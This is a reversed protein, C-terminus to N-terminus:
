DTMDWLVESLFSGMSHVPLTDRVDNELYRAPPDLYCIAALSALHQQFLKITGPVCIEKVGKKGDLQMESVCFLVSRYTGWGFVADLIRQHAYPQVIRERTTIKVPCVLDPGRHPNGFVIDTSVREASDPIGIHKSRRWDPLLQGLVSGVLIEFFTGPTKRSRRQWLDVCCAFAMVTTYLLRNTAESDSGLSRQTPDMRETLANWAREYVAPDSLFESSLIPRSAETPLQYSLYQKHGANGCELLQSESNLKALCMLTIQGIGGLPSSGADYRGKLQKFADQILQMDAGSVEKGLSAYLNGPEAEV